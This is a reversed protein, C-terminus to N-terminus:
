CNSKSSLYCKTLWRPNLYPCIKTAWPIWREATHSRKYSITCYELRLMSHMTKSFVSQFSSILNLFNQLFVQVVDQLYSPPWKTQSYVLFLGFTKLFTTKNAEKQIELYGDNKGKKQVSQVGAFFRFDKLCKDFVAAGAVPM